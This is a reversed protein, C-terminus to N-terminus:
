KLLIKFAYSKSIASYEQATTSGSYSTSYSGVIEEVVSIFYFSGNSRRIANCTDLIGRPKIMVTILKFDFTAALLYALTLM